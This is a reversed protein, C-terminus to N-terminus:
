PEWGLGYYSCILFCVICVGLETVSWDAIVSDMGM